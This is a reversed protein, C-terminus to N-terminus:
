TEVLGTTNGSGASDGRGHPLALYGESGMEILRSVTRDFAFAEYGGKHGAEAQYLRQPPADASCVLKVHNEYLADILIIFRRAENRNAPGLRPVGDLVLTHFRRALALYDPAAYAQACLAEFSARAVGGEAEPVRFEHGLVDLVLPAGKARGTLRLFAGDLAAKAKADAPSHYVPQGALKELRFDTRAELKLVECNQKLLAIFPLFLARNLGGEYLRDPAVNSTAVVTVGLGFLATFLRALIMADAIDTVAFEDFSILKAEAALASAVALIPDNDKVEGRKERQRWEHIRAHVDAMFVHFHARRKAAVPAAEHFLDMLMTKGRGVEGWIYLGKLPPKADSKGRFLWGLASGKRALGRERLQICLGDLRRLVAIQAPDAELHGEAVRAHYRDLISIHTM